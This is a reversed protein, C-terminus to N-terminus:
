YESKPFVTISSKNYDGTVYLCPAIKRPAFAQERWLHPNFTPLGGYKPNKLTELTAFDFLQALIPLSLRISCNEAKPRPQAVTPM